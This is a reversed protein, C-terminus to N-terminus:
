QLVVVEGSMAAIDKPRLTIKEQPKLGSVGAVSIFEKLDAAGNVAYPLVLKAELAVSLDHADKADLTSGGLPVFVIDVDDIDSRIDQSLKGSSLAGLILVKMGDFELLYVTNGYTSTEKGLSGQSAYGTVVVDGIEYAGPGRIVFPEKTGHSATEVGNWDEHEASILVINSGFKSVTHKSTSSPPNVAVTTDGASLKFCNGGLHTIVM